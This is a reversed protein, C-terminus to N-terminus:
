EYSIRRICRKLNCRSYIGRGVKRWDLRYDNEIFKTIFAAVMDADNSEVIWYFQDDYGFPYKIYYEVEMLSLLNEITKMLPETICDKVDFGVYTNGYKVHVWATHQKNYEDEREKLLEEFEQETM